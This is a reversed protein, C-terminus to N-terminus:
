ELVDGTHSFGCKGMTQGARHITRELSDLERAIQKRRIDDAYGNEISLFLGELEHGTRNERVDHQCVFDVPRCGLSLAAQKLSHALGLDRHIVLCMRETLWEHHNRCLIRSFKVARKGERFRLKVAKQHSQSDAIRRRLLFLLYQVARM